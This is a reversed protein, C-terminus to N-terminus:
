LPTSSGVSFFIVEEEGKLVSSDMLVSFAEVVIHFLYSNPSVKGLEELVKPFFFQLAGNVSVFFIARFHMEM